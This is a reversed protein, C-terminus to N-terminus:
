PAACNSASLTHRHRTGQLTPSLSTFTAQNSDDPHNALPPVCWAYRAEGSLVLLSRRPLYIARREGGRRFQM